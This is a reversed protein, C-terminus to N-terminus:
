FPKRPHSPAGPSSGLVSVSLALRGFQRFTHNRSLDLREACTCPLESDRLADPPDAAQTDKRPVTITLWGCMAGISAYFKASKKREEERRRMKEQYEAERRKEAEIREYLEDVDGLNIRWEQYAGGM